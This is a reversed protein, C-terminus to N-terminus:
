EESKVEKKTGKVKSQEEEQPQSLSPPMRM